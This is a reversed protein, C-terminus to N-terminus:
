AFFDTGFREPAIDGDGVDTRLGAPLGKTYGGPPLVRFFSVDAKSSILNGVGEEDVGLRDIEEFSRSGDPYFPQRSREPPADPSAGEAEWASGDAQRGAYPLPYVGDDPRLEIEYVPTDSESTRQRHFAGAADVYGDPPAYLDAADRELPHASFQEVYVTVP